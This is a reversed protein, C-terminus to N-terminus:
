PVRLLPAYRKWRDAGSEGPPPTGAATAFKRAEDLDDLTAKLATAVRSRLAPSGDNGIREVLTRVTDPAARQLLGLLVYRQEKDSMKDFADAVSDAVRSFDALIVTRLSLPWGDEPRDIRVLADITEDGLPPPPWLAYVAMGLASQDTAAQTQALVSASRGIARAVAGKFVASANSSAALALLRASIVPDGEGLLEVVADVIRRDRDIAQLLWAVPLDDEDGARGQVFQQSAENRLWDVVSGTPPIPQPM